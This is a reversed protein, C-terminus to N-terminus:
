CAWVHFCNVLTRRQSKNCYSKACPGDCSWLLVSYEILSPSRQSTVDHRQTTPCDAAEPRNRDEVSPWCCGNCRCVTAHDGIPLYHHQTVPHLSPEGRTTAVILGDSRETPQTLSLPSLRCLSSHKASFSSPSLRRIKVRENQLAFAPIPRCVLLNALSLILEPITLGLRSPLGCHCAFPHLM